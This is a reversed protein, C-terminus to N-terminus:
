PSGAPFRSDLLRASWPRPGATSLSVPAGAGARSGRHVPSPCADRPVGRPSLCADRPVCPRQCVGNGWSAKHPRSLCSSSAKTERPSRFRLSGPQGVESAPTLTLSSQLPLSPGRSPRAAACSWRPPLPGPVPATVTHARRGAATRGAARLGRREEPVARGRASADGSPGSGEGTSPM